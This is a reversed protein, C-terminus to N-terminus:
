AEGDEDDGYKEIIRNYEELVRNYEEDSDINRMIKQGEINEVKVIYIDDGEELNESASIVGLKALPLRTM